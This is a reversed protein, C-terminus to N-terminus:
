GAGAGRQLGGVAQWRQAFTTRSDRPGGAAGPRRGSPRREGDVGVASIWKM